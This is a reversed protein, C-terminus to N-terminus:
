LQILGGGSKGPYRDDRRWGRQKGKTVGSEARWLVSKFSLDSRPLRRWWRRQVNGDHTSPLRLDERPASMNKM